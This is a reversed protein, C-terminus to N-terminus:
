VHHKIFLTRCSCTWMILGILKDDFVKDVKDAHSSVYIWETLEGLMGQCNEADRCESEAQEEVALFVPSYKPNPGSVSGSAEGQVARCIHM